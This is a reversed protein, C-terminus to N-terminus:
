LAPAPVNELKGACYDEWLACYADYTEPDMEGNEPVGMEELRANLADAIEQWNRPCEAGFSEVTIRNM